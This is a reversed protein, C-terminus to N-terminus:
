IRRSAAAAIEARRRLNLKALIHAVHTEITRPSVFLREAMQRNTMGTALLRVVDLEATTLSEWGAAPRRASRRPSALAAGAPTTALFNRIAALTLDQDGVWYMHDEGPPELYQAGPIHAALYRACEVPIVMDNTHHIVLTPVELGALLDRVDVDLHLRLSAAVAGPTAAFRQYSAWWARARTDEALSPAYLEFGIGSGWDSQLTEIFLELVERPIGISFDDSASFRPTTSLLLLASVRDPYAAAVSISTPGGESWALLVAQRISVSDM